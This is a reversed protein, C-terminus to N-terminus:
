VVGRASPPKNYQTNVADKAASAAEMVSSTFYELAGSVVSAMSQGAQVGDQNAEPEQQGLEELKEQYAGIEAEFFKGVSEIAEEIGSFKNVDAALRQEVFKALGEDSVKDFPIGAQEFAELMVLTSTKEGQAQFGIATALQDTFGRGDAQLHSFGDELTPRNQPDEDTGVGRYIGDLIGMVVDPVRHGGQAVRRDQMAARAQATLEFSISIKEVGDPLKTVVEVNNVQSVAVNNLQGDMACVAPDLGREVVGVSTGALLERRGEHTLHLDDHIVALTKDSALRTRADAEKQALRQLVERMAATAAAHKPGNKGWIPGRHWWHNEPHMDAYSLPYGAEGEHEANVEEMVEFIVEDRNIVVVQYGKAKLFASYLKTFTSKGSAPLATPLIYLPGEPNLLDVPM